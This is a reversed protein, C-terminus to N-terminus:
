SPPEQGPAAGKPLWMLPATPDIDTRHYRVLQAICGEITQGQGPEMHGLLVHMQDIRTHPDFGSRLLRGRIYWEPDDWCGVPQAENRPTFPAYLVQILEPITYLQWVEDEDRCEIARQEYYFPIFTPRWYTSSMLAENIRDIGFDFSGLEMVPWGPEFGLVKLRDSQEKDLHKSPDYPTSPDAEMAM